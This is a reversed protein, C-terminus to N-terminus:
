EEIERRAEERRDSVLQEALSVGRSAETFMSQLRTLVNERKELVLQGDEVRAILTQGVNISLEKRIHAPIVVRGQPGVHVEDPSRKAVM